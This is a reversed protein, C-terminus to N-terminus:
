VNNALTRPILVRNAVRWDVQVASSVSTRIRSRVIAVREDALASQVPTTQVIKFVEAAHDTVYRFSNRNVIAAAIRDVWIGVVVEAFLEVYQRREEPSARRWYRGLAFKAVGTIAVSEGFLSRLQEKRESVALTEDTVISISREVLSEVFRAAGCVYAESLLLPTRRTM